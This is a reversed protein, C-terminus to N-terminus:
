LRHAAAESRISPDSCGPHRTRVEQEFRQGQAVLEADERTRM